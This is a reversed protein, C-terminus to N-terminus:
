TQHVYKGDDDEAVWCAAVDEQWDHLPNIYAECFEAFDEANDEWWCPKESVARVRPPREVSPADSLSSKM